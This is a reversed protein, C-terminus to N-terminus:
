RCFTVNTLNKGEDFCSMVAPSSPLKTSQSIAVVLISTHGMQTIFLFLKIENLQYKSIEIM